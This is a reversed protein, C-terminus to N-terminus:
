WSFNKASSHSKPRIKRVHGHAASLITITLKELLIKINESQTDNELALERDQAYADWNATEM